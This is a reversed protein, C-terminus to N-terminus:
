ATSNNKDLCYIRYDVPTEVDVARYCNKCVM